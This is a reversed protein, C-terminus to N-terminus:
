LDYNCTVIASDSIWESQLESRCTGLRKLRGYRWRNDGPLPKWRRLKRLKRTWTRVSRRSEWLERGSNVPKWATGYGLRNTVQKGGRRGPNSGPDPWTPNTTSLTASPSTKESYKPKGQWNANWRNGRLWWRDDPAPVIPWVTAVTGRTSLRMGHSSFQSGGASTEVWSSEAGNVGLSVAIECWCRVRRV